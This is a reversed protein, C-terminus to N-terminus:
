KKMSAAYENNMLTIVQDTIEMGDRAYLVRKRQIVENYDKVSGTEPMPIPRDDMLVLDYGNKMAFDKAAAMAKPYLDNLIDGHDLDIMRNYGKARAELTAELEFKQAIRELRRNKDDKPIVDKLEADIAKIQNAIEDLKEKMGKGKVLTQDNRDKLEALSNMVRALDLVAISTPAGSLNERSSTAVSQIASGAVFAGGLILAALVSSKSAMHPNYPRM